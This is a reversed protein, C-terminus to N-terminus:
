RGADTEIPGREEAAGGEARHSGDSRRQRATGVSDGRTSKASASAERCTEEWSVNTEGRVRPLYKEQVEEPTPGPQNWWELINPTNFWRHLLALDPEALPRFRFRDSTAVPECWATM